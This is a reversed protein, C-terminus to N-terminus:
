GAAKEKGKASPSLISEQSNEKGTNGSGLAVLEEQDEPCDAKGPLKDDTIVDKPASNDLGTWTLDWGKSEDVAGVTLGKTAVDKVDSWFELRKVEEDAKKVAADLSNIRRRVAPDIDVGNEEDKKKKECVADYTKFLHALLLRRSAQFIFLSMIDHMREELQSLEEGGHVIFNEVAEMKERDIRAAVLHHMLTPFDNIDELERESGMVQSALQSVSHRRNYGEQETSMRSRSKSRSRREAPYITFYNDNLKHAANDDRSAQRKARKRIWARRRVYSNWWTPGHWSFRKSFMFSYEWGNDDVGETKNLIWDKWVWVWSPDPCQANTTDTISAKQASNTWPAPDFNGLAAGSFLPLCCCFFAGRQNQFLIDIASAEDEQNQNKRSSATQPRGREEEEPDELGSRSVDAQEDDDTDSAINEEVHRGQYKMYKRRALEERLSHRPHLPANSDQRSTAPSVSVSPLETAAQSDPTCSRPNEDDVLDIEHDYDEPKLSPPRRSSSQFIHSFSM